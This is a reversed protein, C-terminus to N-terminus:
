KVNKNYKFDIFDPKQQMKDTYSRASVFMLWPRHQCATALFSFAVDQCPPPDEKSKAITKRRM